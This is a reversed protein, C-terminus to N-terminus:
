LPRRGGAARLGGVVLGGAVVVAGAGVADGVVHVLDHGSRLQVAEDAACGGIGGAQRDGVLSAAGSAGARRDGGAVALEDDVWTGITWAGLERGFEDRQAGPPRLERRARRSDRRPGVVARRGRAAPWGVM